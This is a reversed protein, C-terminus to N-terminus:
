TECRRRRPRHEHEHDHEHEHEDVDEENEDEDEDEYLFLNVDGIMYEAKDQKEPTIKQVRGEGRGDDVGVGKMLAAEAEAEGPAVACVIFTLKDADSRWSRQM